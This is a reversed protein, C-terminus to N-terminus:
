IRWVGKYLIEFQKEINKHLFYSLVLVISLDIMIFIFIPINKKLVLGMSYLATHIIDMCCLIISVNILKLLRRLGQTTRLDKIFIFIIINIINIAVVYLVSTKIFLMLIEASIIALIIYNYVDNLKSCINSLKEKINSITDM